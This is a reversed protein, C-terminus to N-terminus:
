HTDSCLRKKLRYITARLSDYKINFIEAIEKIPTWNNYLEM